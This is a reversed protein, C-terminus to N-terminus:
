LNRLKELINKWAASSHEAAQESPFGEQTVELVSFSEKEQIKFTILSYNEQKDELGSFETWYSYQFVQFPLFTTIVGKDRYNQGEYEGEFVIQSGITWDSTTKTGFLYVKIKEPNVLADWVLHAPAKIELSANAKLEKNM